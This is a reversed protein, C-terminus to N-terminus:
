RGILGVRKAKFIAASLNRVRLKLFLNHLHWKVTGVTLGLRDAIEQNSM